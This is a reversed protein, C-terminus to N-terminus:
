NALTTAESSVPSASDALIKSLVGRLRESGTLTLHHSDFYLPVGGETTMQCNPRCFADVTSYIRLRAHNASGLDAILKANGDLYTKRSVTPLPNGFRANRWLMGPVNEKWTPVPLLIAITTGVTETSSLLEGVAALNMSGPAYHLLILEAEIAEAQLAVQRANPGGPTLPSNHVTLYTSFGAEQAVESLTTKIADPHSNGVLLIRRPLAIASADIRCLVARPELLRFLAGCRYRSRDVLANHIAMEKVPTVRAQYSSGFYGVLLVAVAGGTAWRFPRTGARFPKEVFVFLAASAMGILAVVQVLELFGSPKLITGSFPVYLFFVIVPFHALYLSYSLRGLWELLSALPNSEFLRPLGFALVVGAALTVILAVMGPHGRLFGTADPQMPFSTAVAMVALAAAGLWRARPMTEIWRTGVRAAVGYGILFEWIRFPLWFFSTKTSIGVMVFCILASIIMAAFYWFRGRAFLSAFIPVLLYFQIEVGLSWLHLLPRFSLMNFYSTDLWYGVNSSFVAAFASQEYTQRYESPTTIAISVLLTALITAFYAPLLRLARKEFFQRTRRPDYMVAMLYGSIVFFIDVGLFGSSFGPIELHYLIVLLVAAGRLVQIDKRYEM